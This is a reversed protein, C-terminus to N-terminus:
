GAFKKHTYWDSICLAAAAATFEILEPVSIPQNFGGLHPGTLITIDKEGKRLRRIDTEAYGRSKLFGYFETESMVNQEAIRLIEEMHQDIGMEDILRATVRKLDMPFTNQFELGTFGKYYNKFIETVTKEFFAHDFLHRADVPNGCGDFGNLQADLNRFYSGAILMLSLIHSGIYEYLKRPSDNFSIFHEFDRIGSQGINPFRCSSLWRDLRGARPWQYLGGDDRRHRQVRNHFLPVPATHIIGASALQGMIRANRIIIEFFAEQPLSCGPRHDNPYQFYDTCTIFGVAPLRADITSNEPIGSPLGHLRVLFSDSFRIPSPIHFRDPTRIVNKRNETIFDMWLGENVLMDTNEGPRSMKLVLVRRNEKPQVILSRGKWAVSLSSSAVPLGAKQLVEQWSVMPIRSQSPASYPSKKLRPGKIKLSLSGLAEAAARFPKEKKNRLIYILSHKAKTALMPDSTTELIARLADAAKRHLFFIQRQGAHTENELVCSLASITTNKIIEPAQDIIFQLNSVTMYTTVFDSQKEILYSEAEHRDKEFNWSYMKQNLVTWRPVKMLPSEVVRYIQHTKFLVMSLPM